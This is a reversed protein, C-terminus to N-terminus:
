DTIHGLLMNYGIAKRGFQVKEMWLYPITPSSQPHPEFGRPPTLLFFLLLNLEFCM